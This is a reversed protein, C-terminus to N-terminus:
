MFPTATGDHGRAIRRHGTIAHRLTLLPLAPWGNLESIVRGPHRGRQVTPFAVRHVANDLSGGVPGASDSVRLM